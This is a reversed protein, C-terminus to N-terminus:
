GASPSYLSHGFKKHKSGASLAQCCSSKKEFVEVVRVNREGIHIDRSKAIGKGEGYRVGVSNRDFCTVEYLITLLEFFEDFAEEHGRLMRKALMRDNDIGSM